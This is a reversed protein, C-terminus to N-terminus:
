KSFKELRNSIKTFIIQKTSLFKEKIMWYNVEFLGQQFFKRSQFVLSKGSHDEYKKKEWYYFFVLFYYFLQLFSLSFGHMGDKYGEYAFYRSIFESLGKKITDSLRLDTKSQIYEEAESKSYRIMKQLYEDINEYNYHLIALDKHPDIVLAKGKVEPQAHLKKPWIVQNKKFFRIQYDPWWRSHEIWRGFLINKRPIEVYDFDEQANKIKTKLQPQLVEDSDLLLVYNYTAHKKTEERILEIYQPTEFKVIKIHPRTKLQAALQSTMGIDVIIIENAFDSVSDITEFIHPPNEKVSIIASIDNM